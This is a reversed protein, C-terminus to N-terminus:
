KGLPLMQYCIVELPEIEADDDEEDNDGGFSSATGRVIVMHGGGVLFATGDVMEHGLPITVQRLYRGETSFVDWTELIDEPQDNNGHPTLVWVTDEDPNYQVRTICEDHDEINWDRGEPRGAVNIMPGVDDKDEQTRKRPKYQRGFIKQLNGTKDFVSVEYADRKMPAYITGNRGLDWRLDIYYNNKETFTRGTPDVPTQTELIRTFHTLDGEGVTLFRETHSNNQDQFVIRGGSSVLVGDRFKSSMMVGINGEAPEGIPFLSKIPTGDLKLTAVKGPFGLGVALVDDALFTLAMPQRLEGPGDGERSITQLYEGDPSIATVQCLQNDLVYVNGNPHRQLSTIRGFIVEEDEGGIRWLEELVLPVTGQEPGDKDMLCPVEQATSMNLLPGLTLAVVFLFIAKM